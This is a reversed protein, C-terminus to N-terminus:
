AYFLRQCHLEYIPPSNNNVTYYYLKNRIKLTFNRTFNLHTYSHPLVAFFDFNEIKQLAIDSTNKEIVVTKNKCCKEADQVANACCTAPELSSTNKEIKQNFSIGALMEGCYHLQLTMGLHSLLLVIVLLTNIIFHKKM